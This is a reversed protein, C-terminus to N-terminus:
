LQKDVSGFCCPPVPLQSTVQYPDSLNCVWRGGPEGPDFLEVSPDEYIFNCDRFIMKRQIGYACMWRLGRLIGRGGRAGLPNESFDVNKLGINEKISDGLVM